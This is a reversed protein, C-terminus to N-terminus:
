FHLSPRCSAAAGMMYTSLYPVWCHCLKPQVFPLPPIYTCRVSIPFWHENTHSTFSVSFSPFTLLSLSHFPSTLIFYISSQSPLCPLFSPGIPPFHSHFHYLSTPICHLLMYSYTVICIFM